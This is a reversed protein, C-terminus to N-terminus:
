KCLSRLCCDIMKRTEEIKSLDPQQDLERILEIQGRRVRIITKDM